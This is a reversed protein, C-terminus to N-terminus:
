ARPRSTWATTGRTTVSPSTARMTSGSSGAAGGAPPEAPQVAAEGLRRRAGHRAPRAHVRLRAPRPDRGHVPERRGDRHLGVVALGLLVVHDLVIAALVVISAGDRGYRYRLLLFTVFLTWFAAETGVALIWKLEM